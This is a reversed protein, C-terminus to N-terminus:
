AKGYGDGPFVEPLLLYGYNLVCYVYIGTGRMKGRIRDIHKDMMTRMKDDFTYNYALQALTAYTVPTGHRLPFLLRYETPTLAITTKGVVIAHRQNDWKIDSVRIAKEEGGSKIAHEYSSVAM